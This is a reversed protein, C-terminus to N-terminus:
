PTSTVRCNTAVLAVTMAVTTTAIMASTSVIPLPAMWVETPAIKAIVVHAKRPVEGVHHPLAMARAVQRVKPVRTAVARAVRAVAVVM